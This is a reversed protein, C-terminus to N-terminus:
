RWARERIQELGSDQTVIGNTHTIDNVKTFFKDEWRLYLNERRFFEVIGEVEGKVGDHILGPDTGRAIGTNLKRKTSRGANAAPALRLQALFVSQASCRAGMREVGNNAPRM